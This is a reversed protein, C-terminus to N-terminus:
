RMGRKAIFLSFPPIEEPSRNYDDSASKASSKVASSVIPPMDNSSGASPHRYNDDVSSAILDSGIFNLFISMLPILHFASISFSYFNKNITFM